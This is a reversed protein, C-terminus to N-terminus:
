IRGLLSISGVQETANNSGRVFDYNLGITWDDTTAALAGGLVYNGRAPDAGQLVFSAGPQEGIVNPNIDAFNAHLKQPDNLFDYRYGLRASPQLFFDGLNIDGRFESGVFARLSNSYAPKVTLDFGTGGNIETYGEERLSMGDISLQPIANLGGFKLNAGMTVGLSALLAARKGDAERTFTSGPAPTPITLDLFRKSKFNGYGINVQSDFFLGRGRWDSYGTLLYWLTSTKNRDDVESVDGTYFTFAAGYWGGAASGEDLGLSFGFGHDKFGPAAGTNVTPDSSSVVGGQTSMYEGFENGWLTLDGPAKAFLRLARQRAAVVGTAQDTLSIAIARTGGSVDPAFADYAKQVDSQSNIGAVLAAGLTPDQAVAVNALPFMTKAFGTLGLQAVTKASVALQLVDHGAGDNVKSITASNFLFPLTTSSGVTANYRAIDAASINLAGTPASILAFNGSATIFSGYEVGLNAGSGFTVSNSAAVVATNTVGQSVTINVTGASSSSGGAVNFNRTALTTGVNQITLTGTGDVQVDLDGQATIAGAVNAFQAVHLTDFGSGGGTNSFGFNIAGTHTAAAAPGSGKVTYTDSGSGFLVDGVVVGTNTFTLGATNQSVDVAHAIPLNGSTLAITGGTTGDTLTATAQILGQNNITVLTNSVDQIAVAALSDISTGGPVTATANAAVRAGQQIDIEPVSTATTGAIIIATAIGGQPGNVVASLSGQGGGSTLSQASIVISPLTVYNDVELAYATVASGPTVSTASASILGSNIFGGTFTVPTALAGSIVITRTSQNPDEPAASINGRNIFSFTPNAADAVDEGITIPVGLLPQILIAPTAGTGNGAITAPATADANSAPGNNLIGGAVSNGVVLASGSEVNTTTTSRVGVGAVGISGSNAFTGIETCGTVAAANCAQIPGSIVVGQAGNGTATYTAGTSILVNGNTTGLLNVITVSSSASENASSPSVTMTGGLTWDGNLVTATDSVVGNSSDGVVSVVSGTDLTIDGTFSGAGTLYLAKKGTGTGTLDIAGNSLFGGTLDNADIAVATATTQDSATLVGGNNVTNSSDITLLPVTASKFNIGSTSDITLDGTTSTAQATTVVTKLETPGVALAPSSLLAAAAASLM